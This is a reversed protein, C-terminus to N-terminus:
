VDQEVCFGVQNVCFAKVRDVHGGFPSWNSVCAM